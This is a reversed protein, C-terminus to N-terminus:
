VHVRSTYVALTAVATLALFSCMLCSLAGLLAGSGKIADNAFRAVEPPLDVASTSMPQTHSGPLTRVTLQASGAIAAEKQLISTLRPTEDISDDDFAILLNKGVNYYARILQDSEDPTPTFEQRGQAVDLFVPTLQELLPLTMQVVGPSFGRLTQLALELQSRFPSTAMQVRCSEMVPLQLCRTVIGAACSDYQLFM